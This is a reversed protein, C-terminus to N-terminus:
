QTEGAQQQLGQQLQIHQLLLLMQGTVVIGAVANQKFAGAVANEQHTALLKHIAVRGRQVHKAAAALLDNALRRIPERGLVLRVAAAGIFFRHLFDSRREAALGLIKLPLMALIVAGQKIGFHGQIDDINTALRMQQGRNAIVAGALAGFGLQRLGPLRQEFTIFAQPQDILQRGLQM